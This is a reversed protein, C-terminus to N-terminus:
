FRRDAKYADYMCVGINSSEIVNSAINVCKADHGCENTEEKTIDCARLVERTCTYSDVRKVTKQYNFLTM